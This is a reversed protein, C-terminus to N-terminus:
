TESGLGPKTVAMLRQAISVAVAHSLANLQLDPDGAMLPFLLM